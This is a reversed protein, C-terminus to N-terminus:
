MSPKLLNKGAVIVLQYEQHWIQLCITTHQHYVRLGLLQPYERAVKGNPEHHEQGNQCQCIRHLVVCHKNSALYASLDQFIKYEKRNQNGVYYILFWLVEQDM